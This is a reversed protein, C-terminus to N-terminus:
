SLLIHPRSPSFLMSTIFMAFDEAGSPVINIKFRRANGLFVKPNFPELFEKKVDFVSDDSFLYRNSSSAFSLIKKKLVEESVLHYPSPTAFDSVYSPHKASFLRQIYVTESSDDFEPYVVIGVFLLEGRTLGYHKNPKAMLITGVPYSSM